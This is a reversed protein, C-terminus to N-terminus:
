RGYISSRGYLTSRSTVEPADLRHGAHPEELDIKEEFKVVYPGITKEDTTSMCQYFSTLKDTFM